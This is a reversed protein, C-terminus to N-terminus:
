PIQLFSRRFSEPGGVRRRSSDRTRGRVGAHSQRTRRSPLCRVGTTDRRAPAWVDSPGSPLAKMPGWQRRPHRRDRLLGGPQVVVYHHDGSGGGARGARPPDAPWGDARDPQGGCAHIGTDIIGPRVAVVRIGEGAVEQALGFTMTDIAGKSAAYDVYEGPSGWGALRCVVCQRDRWGRRRRRDVDAAGGTRRVPVIGRREGRVDPHDWSRGHGASPLGPRRNRCQERTSGARGRGAWHDDAVQFLAEVAAQDAQGRPVAVAEASLSPAGPSWRRPRTGADSRYGLCLDWGARALSVALDGLASVGAEVRSSPLQEPTLPCPVDVLM